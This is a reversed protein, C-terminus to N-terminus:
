TEAATAAIDEKLASRVDLFVLPLADIWASPQPQTKLAAKLQRHCHEVMGNSQPHYATTRARFGLLTSLNKWLQSEFQRGRETVIRSPVGYRAIWGLLFAKVVSELICVRFLTLLWM